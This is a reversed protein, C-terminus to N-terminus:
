SMARRSTQSNDKPGEKAKPPSLFPGRWLVVLRHCTGCQMFGLYGPASYDIELKWERGCACTYTFVM